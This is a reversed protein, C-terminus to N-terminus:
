TNVYHGEPYIMGTPYAALLLGNAVNNREFYISFTYLAM